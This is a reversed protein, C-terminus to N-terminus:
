SPPKWAQRAVQECRFDHGHFAGDVARAIEATSAGSLDLKGQKLSFESLM